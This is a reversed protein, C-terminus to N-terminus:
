LPALLSHRGCQVGTSAASWDVVGKSTGRSSFTTQPTKKTSNEWAFGEVWYGQTSLCLSSAVPWNSLNLHGCNIRITGRKWTPEWGGLNLAVKLQMNWTMDRLFAFFNTYVSCRFYWQCLKNMCKLKLVHSRPKFDGKHHWVLPCKCYNRDWRTSVAM